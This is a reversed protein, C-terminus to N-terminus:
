TLTVAFQKFLCRSSIERGWVGPSILIRNYFPHVFTCIMHTTRHTYIYTYIPRDPQVYGLLVPGTVDYWSVTVELYTKDFTIGFHKQIFIVTVGMATVDMQM